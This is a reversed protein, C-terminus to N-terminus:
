LNESDTPNNFIGFNILVVSIATTIGIFQEADIGISAWIDYANFILVILSVVSAWAVPSKFRNQTM